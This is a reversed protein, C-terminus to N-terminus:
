DQLSLLRSCIADGAGVLCDHHNECLIWSMDKPVLYYEFGYCEGVIAQAARTTAEYVPYFLLQVEEVIFWLHVEPDPVIDVLRKFGQDFQRLASPVNFAEWWWRRDVAGVFHRLSQSFIAEADEDSLERFVQPQLRLRDVALRIEDKVTKM